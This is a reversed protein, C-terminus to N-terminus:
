RKAEGYMQEFQEASVTDATIQKGAFWRQNLAAVCKAASEESDFKLILFGATKPLVECALVKGHKSVEDGVDERLDDFFDPDNQEDEGNPDFMNKMLVYQTPPGTPVAAAVPPAGPMAM